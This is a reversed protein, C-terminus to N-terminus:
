AYKKKGLYSDAYMFPTAFVVVLSKVLWGMMIAQVLLPGSLDIFAISFFLLSDVFQSIINAGNSRLWLFKGRARVKLWDYIYINVYQAFIYALISAFTIRISFDFLTTVANNASESLPLGVFNTALQSMVVFFLIFGAGLGITKLGEARGYKEIIFHTALFVCAYFVNGANTVFGFITILKAGFISVLILNVIITGYLWNIGRRSAFLIFLIDVIASLIFLLENSM